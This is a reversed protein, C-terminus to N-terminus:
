APVPRVEPMHSARAPSSSCAARAFLLGLEGAAAPRAVDAEAGVSLQDDRVQGGLVNRGLRPATRRPQVGQQGADWDPRDHQDTVPTTVTASGSPVFQVM